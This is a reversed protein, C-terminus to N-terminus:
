RVNYKGTLLGLLIKLLLLNGRLPSIKTPIKGKPYVRSVPIEKVSFGLKPAKHSLYALLEYTDFIRRFPKIKPDLLLKRSHARFGNTTDTYRFGSLISMYPAHILKIALKRSFPTNVEQGGPVYRSGQVFDMGNDLETIFNPISEVSDKNNGDITVVGEYGRKMAYAFGMRLQASLKGTDRKTLLVSIGNGRLFDHSLSDDTSGGDLIIIDILESLGKMRNLQKRIKEGENIVPICVCYKHRKPLFEVSEFSPVEWEATNM